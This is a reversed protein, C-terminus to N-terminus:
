ASRGVRCGPLLTRSRRPRRSPGSRPLLSRSAVAAVALVVSSPVAARRRPLLGSTTVVAISPVSTSVTPVTAAISSAISMSPLTCGRAAWSRPLLRMRAITSWAHVAIANRRRRRRRAPDRRWRRRAVERRRGRRWRLLPMSRSCKSSLIHQRGVRAPERPAESSAHRVQSISFFSVRELKAKNTVRCRTSTQILM